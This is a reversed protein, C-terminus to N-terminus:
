AHVTYGIDFRLQIGQNSRVDYLFRGDFFIKQLFGGRRGCRERQRDVVGPRPHGQLSSAALPQEGGPRALASLAGGGGISAKAASRPRLSEIIARLTM